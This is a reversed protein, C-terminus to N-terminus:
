DIRLMVGRGCAHCGDGEPQNSTENRCYTCRVVPRYNMM